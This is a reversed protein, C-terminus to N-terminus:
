ENEQEVEQGQYPYYHWIRLSGDSFRTAFIGEGVAFEKNPSLVLKLVPKDHCTLVMYPIGSQADWFIVTQDSSGSLVWKKDRTYKADWVANQLFTLARTLPEM